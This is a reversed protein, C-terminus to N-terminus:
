SKLFITAVRSSKLFYYVLVFYNDPHSSSAATSM